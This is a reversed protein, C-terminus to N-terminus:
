SSRKRQVQTILAEVAGKALEICVSDGPQVEDASRVIHGAKTRVLSYGRSLTRAPSLENFLRGAAFVENRLRELRGSVRLRAQHFSDIEAAILNLRRSFYHAVFRGKENIEAKKQVLRRCLADRMLNIEWRRKLIFDKREPFLIEAANSPTSARVDAVLDVLSEDREHGVGVVVPLRSRYVARAVAETNFAALDELSGGGRILVIAECGYQVENLREFAAGIDEVAGVGQVRCHALLFEVGGWRNGAIRKFDGWAASERSAIVGIREPLVPLARKREIACLGEKVLKEKLLVYARALSGEGVVEVRQVTFSFRGSKDHIKAYGQVRVRMGDELPTPLMFVTSFCNLCAGEDKLDFFIWKGQTVKYQSVEGEVVFEGLIIENIQHIFDAVSFVTVM